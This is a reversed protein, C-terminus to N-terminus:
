TRSVYFIRMEFHNPEDKVIEYEMGRSMLEGFLHKPNMRHRFLLVENEKLAELARTALVLPEPAELESLTHWAHIVGFFELGEDEPIDSYDHSYIDMDNALKLLQPVDDQTFEFRKVYSDREVRM